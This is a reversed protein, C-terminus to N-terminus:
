VISQDLVRFRLDRLVPTYFPAVEVLNQTLEPIYGYLYDVKGSFLQETELSITNDEVDVSFMTEPLVRAVNYKLQYLTYRYSVGKGDEVTDICYIIGNKYDVSYRGDTSTAFGSSYTYTTSGIETESGTYYVQIIGTAYDINYQGEVGPVGGVETVFLDTRSFVVGTGQFLANDTGHALTFTFVPSSDVDPIVEAQVRLNQYLEDHGNAFVVEVPAVAPLFIDDPMIVSGKVINKQSLRIVYGTNTSVNTEETPPFFYGNFGYPARITGTVDSGAGPVFNDSAVVIRDFGNERTSYTFGIDRYIPFYRYSVMTINTSSTANFSTIVGHEYDVYYDGALTLDDISAVETQFIGSTILTGTLDRETIQFSWNHLTAETSIIKKHQLQINTQGKPLIYSVVGSPSGLRELSSRGVVGDSSFELNAAFGNSISAFTVAEPTFHMRVKAGAPVAKGNTGDGFVIKAIGDESGLRYVLDTSSYLSLNGVLGWEVGDVSVVLSSAPLEDIAFPAFLELQGGNGTGIVFPVRTTGNPGRTAITELVTVDDSALTETPSILAPTIEPNVITSESKRVVSETEEGFNENTTFAGSNRKLVARWLFSSTVVLDDFTLVEPTDFSDRKLPQIEQWDQGEDTSIYFKISGFASSKPRYAALLGVKFMDLTISRGKSIIESEEAFEVAKIDISRVGIAMRYKDVGLQTPYIYPTSKRLRVSVHKAKHPLFTYTFKGNWMSSSPNLLFVDSETENAYDKLPISDKVSTWTEGDRSVSIDLIEVEDLTGFNVPDIVIRNVIAPEELALRLNVTLPVISAAEDLYYTKEFEAWTDANFDKISDLNNRPTLSAIGENNGLVGEFSTTDLEVSDIQINTVATEGLTVIGEDLVVSAETLSLKSSGIDLLDVNTFSESVLEGASGEYLKLDDLKSAIRRISGLLDDREITTQNFTSVILEGLLKLRLFLIAIDRGVDRMEENHLSTEPASDPVVGIPDFVAKGVSDQFEGVLQSWMQLLEERTQFAGSAFAVSLEDLLVKLRNREVTLSPAQLANYPM